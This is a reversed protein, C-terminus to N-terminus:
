CIAPCDIGARKIWGRDGMHVQGLGGDALEAKVANIEGDRRCREAFVIGMERRDVLTDIFKAGNGFAVMAEPDDDGSLTKEGINGLAVVDDDEAGVFPLLHEIRNPVPVEVRSCLRQQAKWKNCESGSWWPRHRVVVRRGFWRGADSDHDEVGVRRMM